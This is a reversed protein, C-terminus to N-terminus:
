EIYYKWLFQVKSLHLSDSYTFVYSNLDQDTCMIRTTVLFWSKLVIVSTSQFCYSSKKALISHSADLEILSSSLRFPNRIYSLQLQPNLYIRYFNSFKNFMFSCIDGFIRQWKKRELKEASKSNLWDQLQCPHRSKWSGRDKSVWCLDWTMRLMAPGWPFTEPTLPYWGSGRLTSKSWPFLIM